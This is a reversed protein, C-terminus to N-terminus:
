TSDITRATSPAYSSCYSCARMQMGFLGVFLAVLTSLRACSEGGTQLLDSVETLRSVVHCGSMM